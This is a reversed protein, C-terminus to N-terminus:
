CEREQNPVFPGSGVFYVEGRLINILQPLEDIRTQPLTFRDDAKEAPRHNDDRDAGDVMFRLLVEVPLRGCPEGMAIIIRSARYAEIQRSSQDFREAESLQSANGSGYANM